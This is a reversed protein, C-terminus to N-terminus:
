GGVCLFFDVTEPASADGQAATVGVRWVGAMFFYLQSVTYTGDANATSVPVLPSGHGHDPMFPDITLTAGAIAAGTADEISLTWTNMGVSPPAPAAGVLVARLTGDQSSAALGADYPSV